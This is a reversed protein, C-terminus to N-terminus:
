DFFDDDDANGGLRRRVEVEGHSESRQWPGSSRERGSLDSRERLKEWDSKERDLKEWDGTGDRDPPTVLHTPEANLWSDDVVVLSATLCRCYSCSYVSKPSNYSFRRGPVEKRPGKEIEMWESAGSTIKSMFMITNKSSKQLIILVYNYM